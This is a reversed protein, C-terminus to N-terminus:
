ILNSRNRDAALDVPGRRPAFRSLLPDCVLALFAAATTARALSESRLFREYQARAYRRVPARASQTECASDGLRRTRRAVSPLGRGSAAAAAANRQTRKACTDTASRVGAIWVGVLPQSYAKVDSAHM